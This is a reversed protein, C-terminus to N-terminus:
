SRAPRSRRDLASQAVSENSRRTTRRRHGFSRRVPLSWHSGRAPYRFERRRVRCQRSSFAGRYKRCCSHRVSGRFRSRVGTRRSSPFGLLGLVIAFPEQGAVLEARRASNWIVPPESQNSVFRRNGEQLRSLAQVASIM